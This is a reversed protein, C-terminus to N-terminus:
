IAKGLVHDYRFATIFERTTPHLAWEKEGFSQALFDDALEFTGAISTAHSSHDDYGFHSPLQPQFTALKLNKRAALAKRMKPPNFPLDDIYIVPIETDDPATDQNNKNPLSDCFDIVEAAAQGKDTLQYHGSTIVVGDCAEKFHKGAFDIACKETGAITSTVFAVFIDHKRWNQVMRNIYEIDPDPQMGYESNKVLQILPYKIALDSDEFFMGEGYDHFSKREATDNEEAYQVRRLALSLSGVMDDIDLFAYGRPSTDPLRLAALSEDLTVIRDSTASENPWLTDAFHQRFTEPDPTHYGTTELPQGPLWLREAM